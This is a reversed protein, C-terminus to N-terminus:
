RGDLALDIDATLNCVNTYQWHKRGVEQSLENQM